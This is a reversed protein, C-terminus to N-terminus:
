HPGIQGPGVQLVYCTKDLLLDIDGTWIVMCRQRVVDLRGLHLWLRALLPLLAPIGLHGNRLDQALASGEPLLPAAHQAGVTAPRTNIFHVDLIRGADKEGGCCGILLSFFELDNLAKQRVPM